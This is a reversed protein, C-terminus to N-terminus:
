ARKRAVFALRRPALPQSGWANLTRVTFGAHRLEATVDDRRDIRAWHREDSRRYTAGHKRFATIDRQLIGRAPDEMVDVLVAWDPGRQCDRYEVPRHGVRIVLDFLFLGGPELATAVRAFLRRYAGAALRNAALYGISEGVAMVARCAPFRTDHLSATRFTARPAVRRALTTMATSADIGLVRYGAETLHRALIGSGSGLDVVLGDEIGAEDLLAIIGPAAGAAFGGFGVHHIWALDAHYIKGSM